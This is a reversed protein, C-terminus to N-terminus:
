RAQASELITEVSRSEAHARRVLENAEAITQKIGGILMLQPFHGLDKTVTVTLRDDQHKFVFEGAESFVIGSWDKAVVVDAGFGRLQLVLIPLAEPLCDCTVTVPQPARVSSPRLWRVFSGFLASVMM